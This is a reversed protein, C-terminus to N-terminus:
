LLALNEPRNFAKIVDLHVGSLLASAIQNNKIYNVQAKSLTFPLDRFFQPRKPDVIVLPKGQM